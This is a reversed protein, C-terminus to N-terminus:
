KSCCHCKNACCRTCTRWCEVVDLVVLTLIQKLRIGGRTVDQNLITSNNHLWYVVSSIMSIHRVICTLQITSDVEYYKDLLPIGKEDVIRISPATRFFHFCFSYMEHSFTNWQLLFNHSEHFVSTIRRGRLIYPNMSDESPNISIM